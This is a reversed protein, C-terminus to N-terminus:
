NYFCSYLLGFEKILFILDSM